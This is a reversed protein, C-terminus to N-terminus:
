ITRGIGDVVLSHGLNPDNDFDHVTLIVPWRCNLQEKIVEFCNQWSDCHDRRVQELM